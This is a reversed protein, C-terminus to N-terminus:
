RKFSLLLLLSFDRRGKTRRRSNVISQLDLAFDIETKKRRKKLRISLSFMKLWICNSQWPELSNDGQLNGCAQMRCVGCEIIPHFEFLLRRSLEVFLFSNNFRRRTVRHFQLKDCRVRTTLYKIQMDRGLKLYEYFSNVISSLKVFM